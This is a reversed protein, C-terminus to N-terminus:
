PQLKLSNRVQYMDPRACGVVYEIVLGSEDKIVWTIQLLASGIPVNLYEVADPGGLIASFAQEASYFKIKKRLLWLLSEKEVDSRTFQRGLEERTFIRLYFFPTGKYSRVRITELVKEDSTLAMTKKVIPPPVVYSFGALKSDSLTRFSDTLQFLDEMTHPAPPIPVVKNVFAGVGQARTIWKDNELEDLARRITIRSVNFMKCLEVETPIKAGEGYEGRQISELLLLYVQHYLPVAADRNAAPASQSRAMQM